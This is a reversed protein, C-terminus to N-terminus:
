AARTMSHTSAFERSSQELVQEDSAPRRAPDSASRRWLQAPRGHRATTAQVAALAISAQLFAQRSRRKPPRAGSHGACCRASRSIWREGDRYHLVGQIRIFVEDLHWPDGSQPRRRRLKRAFDSGFKLCWHRISEHTVVIGREALILDVDRPSLHQREPVDVFRLFV